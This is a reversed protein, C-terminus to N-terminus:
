GRQFWHGLRGGASPGFVESPPNLFGAKLSHSVRTKEERGTCGATPLSHFVFVKNEGHRHLRESHLLMFKEEGQRVM